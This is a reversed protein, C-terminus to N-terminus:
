VQRNSASDAVIVEGLMELNNLLVALMEFIDQQLTTVPKEIVPKYNDLAAQMADESEM